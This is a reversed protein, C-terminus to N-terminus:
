YRLICPRTQTTYFSIFPSEPWVSSQCRPCIKLGRHRVIEVGGGGRHSGEVVSPFSKILIDIQQEYSVHMGRPVVTYIRELPVFWLEVHVRKASTTWCARWISSHRICRSDRDQSTWNNRRTASSNLLIINDVSYQTGPWVYPQVDHDRLLFHYCNHSCCVLCHLHVM